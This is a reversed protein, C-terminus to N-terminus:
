ETTCREQLDLARDDKADSERESRERRKDQRVRECRWKEEDDRTKTM